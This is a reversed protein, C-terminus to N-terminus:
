TFALIHSPSRALSNLVCQTLLRILLNCYVPAIQCAVPRWAAPVCAHSARIWASPYLSSAMTSIASMLVLPRARLMPMLWTAQVICAIQHRQLQFTLAVPVCMACAIRIWTPSATPTSVRPTLRLSISWCTLLHCSSNCCISSKFLRSSMHSLVLPWTFLM